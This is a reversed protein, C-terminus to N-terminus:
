KFSRLRLPDGTPVSLASRNILHSWRSIIEDSQGRVEHRGEIGLSLLDLRTFATIAALIDDPTSMNASLGPDYRM